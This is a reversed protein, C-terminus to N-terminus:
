KRLKDVENLCKFDLMKKLQLNMKKTHTENKWLASEEFQMSVEEIGFIFQVKGVFLFSFFCDSRNFDATTKFLFINILKNKIININM